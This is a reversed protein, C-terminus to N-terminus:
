TSGCPILLTELTSVGVNGLLLIGDGGVAREGREGPFGVGGDSHEWGVVELAKVVMDGQDLTVSASDCINREGGENLLEETRGGFVTATFEPDDGLSANFVVDLVPVTDQFTM